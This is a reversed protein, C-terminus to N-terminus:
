FDLWANLFTPQDRQGANNNTVAFSGMGKSQRPCSASGLEDMWVSQPSKAFWEGAMGSSRECLWSTRWIRPSDHDLWHLVFYVAAAVGVPQIAGLRRKGPTKQLSGQEFGQSCRAPHFYIASDRDELFTRLCLPNLILQSTTGDTRKKESPRFDSTM